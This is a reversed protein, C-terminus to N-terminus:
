QSSVLTGSSIAMNNAVDFTDELVWTAGGGGDNFTVEHFDSGGSTIYKTGSGADFTVSTSPCVDVSCFYTGVNTWSGSVYTSTCTWDTYYTGLIKIDDVDVTAIGEFWVRPFFCTSASGWIYFENGPDVTLTHPNGSTNATFRIHGDDIKDYQDMDAIGLCGSDDSRAIIHDKYIDLDNIDVGSAKTVTTGTSSPDDLFVTLITGSTASINSITYAGDGLSTLDSYNGAGNAKIRVTIGDTVPTLGEDTYVNGSVTITQADAQSQFILFLILIASLINSYFIKRFM